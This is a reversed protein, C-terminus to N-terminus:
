EHSARIREREEEEEEEKLLLVDSLAEGFVDPRPAKSITHSPLPVTARIQRGAVVNEKILEKLQVALYESKFKVVKKSTSCKKSFPQEISPWKDFDGGGSAYRKSWGAGMTWIRFQQKLKEMRATESTLKALGDDVEKVTMFCEETYILNHYQVAQGYKKEEDDQQKKVTAEFQM